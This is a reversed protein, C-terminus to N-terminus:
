TVPHRPTLQGIASPERLMAAVHEPSGSRAAQITTRERWTRRLYVVAAARGALEFPVLRRPRNTWLETAWRVVLRRARLEPM